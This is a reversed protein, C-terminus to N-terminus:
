RSVRVHLAQHLIYSSFLFPSAVAVFLSFRKPDKKGHYFLFKGNFHTHENSSVQPNTVILMFALSGKAGRLNHKCTQM